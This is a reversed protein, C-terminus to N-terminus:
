EDQAIRRALCRRSPAAVAAARRADCRVTGRAHRSRPAPRSFARRRAHDAAAPPADGGREGCRFRRAGQGRDRRDHRRAARHSRDRPASLRRHGVMRPHSVKPHEALIKDYGSKLPEWAATVTAPPERQWAGVDNRGGNDSRGHPVAAEIASRLASLNDPLDAARINTRVAAMGCGIDVGVAAPIIAGITPIVSGVTAGMGWHVDPMIAVHQHIFPLRAVNEIQQRATEEIPVGRTWAKIPAGGTEITDFNSM